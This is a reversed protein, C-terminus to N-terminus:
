FHFLFKFGELVVRLALLLYFLSYECSCSPPVLSVPLFYANRMGGQLYLWDNRVSFFGSNFNLKVTSSLVSTIPVASFAAQLCYHSQIFIYLSTNVFHM